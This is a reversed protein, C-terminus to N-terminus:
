AAAGQQELDELPAVTELGTADRDKYYTERVRARTLARQQQRHEIKLEHTGHEWSARKTVGDFGWLEVTRGAEDECVYNYHYGVVRMNAGIRFLRPCPTEIAQVIPLKMSIDTREPSAHPDAVDRLAATVVRVDDDAAADLRRLLEEKPPAEVLVEDGDLIFCWDEHTTAHLQALQFCLTRKQMEDDFPETPIHLTVGIGSGRAANVIADHQVLESCVRSDDYLRYRGDVAVVHDCIRSMSAITAALWTPSEDFWSLVGIIKTM